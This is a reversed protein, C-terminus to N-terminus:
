PGVTAQLYLMVNLTAGGSGVRPGAPDPVVAYRARGGPLQGREHLGDLQAVYVRAQSASAATVVVADWFRGHLAGALDGSPLLRRYERLRATAGECMQRQELEPPQFHPQQAPAPTAPTLSPMAARNPLVAGTGGTLWHAVRLRETTKIAKLHLLESKLQHVFILENTQETSRASRQQHSGCSLLGRRV